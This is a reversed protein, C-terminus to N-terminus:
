VVRLIQETIVNQFVGEEVYNVPEGHTTAYARSGAAWGGGGSLAPSKVMTTWEVVTHERGSEDVVDYIGAQVQKRQM